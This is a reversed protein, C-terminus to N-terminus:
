IKTEHQILRDIYWRAKRLDTVGGKKHWRWLYKIANSTSVAQPGTLDAVAVEIADICQIDGAAYHAPSNVIDDSL